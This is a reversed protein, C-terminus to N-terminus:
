NGPNLRLGHVGVGLARLALDHRFHIDAIVPIPRASSLVWLIQGLADASDDGPGTIRGGGAGATSLALVQEVTGRVDPTRTTTMSQVSVPADGGIEVAGVRIKRTPRRVPASM